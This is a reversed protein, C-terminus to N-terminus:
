SYGGEVTEGDGEQTARGIFPSLFNERVHIFM